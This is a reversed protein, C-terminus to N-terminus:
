RTIPLKQLLFILGQRNCSRLYNRTQCKNKKLMVHGKIKHHLLMMKLGTIQKPKPKSAPDRQTALRLSVEYSLSTVTRTDEQRWKGLESIAPMCWSVQNETTRPPTLGLSQLINPLASQLSLRM